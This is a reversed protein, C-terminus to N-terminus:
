LECTLIAWTNVKMRGTPNKGLPITAACAPNAAESRRGDWWLRCLHCEKEPGASQKEQQGAPVRARGNLEKQERVALDGKKHNARANGEASRVGKEQLYIVM